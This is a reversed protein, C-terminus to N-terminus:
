SYLIYDQKTLPFVSHEVFYSVKLKKKRKKEIREREMYLSIGMKMRSRPRASFFYDVFCMFTAKSEFPCSLDSLQSCKRQM